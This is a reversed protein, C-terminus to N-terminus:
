VCVCLCARVCVYTCAHMCVHTSRHMCRHRHLLAALQQRELVRRCVARLLLARSDAAYVAEEERPVSSLHANARGGARGGAPRFASVGRRHRSREDHLQYLVLGGVAGWAYGLRVQPTGGSAGGSYRALHNQSVIKEIRFNTMVNMETKRLSLCARAVLLAASDAHARGARALAEAELPFRGVPSCWM